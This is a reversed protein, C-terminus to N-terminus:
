NSHKWIVQRYLYTKLKSCFERYSISSDHLDMAVNNWSQPGAIAFARPRFTKTRSAPIILDGHAASRLHRRGVDMAVTVMLESLYEPAVGHLCKYVLACTKFEIRRDDPLILFNDIPAVSPDSNTIIFYNEIFQITREQGIGMCVINRSWQPLLARAQWARPETLSSIPLM